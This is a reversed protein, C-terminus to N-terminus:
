SRGRRVRALLAREAQRRLIKLDEYRGPVAAAFQRRRRPSADLVLRGHRLVQMAVVPSARVLDVMDVDRGLAAALEQRAEALEMPSPSRRFLVALDVDSDRRSTGKAQSGFVWLADVGLRIELRNTIECIEPASLM